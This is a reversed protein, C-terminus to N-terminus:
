NAQNYECKTLLATGFPPFPFADSALGCDQDPGDLYWVLQFEGCVGDGDNGDFCRYSIGTMDDSGLTVKYTDAPPGPIYPELSANLGSDPYVNGGQCDSIGAGLCKPPTTYDPYNNHDTYYLELANIYQRSLEVKAANKAKINGDRVSSIVITALLAIISIVVLLEILTFGIDNQTTIKHMSIKM